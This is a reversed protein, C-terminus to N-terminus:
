QGLVSRIEEDSALSNCEPDSQADQIMQQDIEDPEIEEILSWKDSSYLREVFDWLKQAHAEDMVTIAGFLRAKIESM